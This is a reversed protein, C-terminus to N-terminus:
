RRHTEKLRQGWPRLEKRDGMSPDEPRGWRAYGTAHRCAPKRHIATASLAANSEVVNWWEGDRVPQEEAGHAGRQEEERWPQIRRARVRREAEARDETRYASKPPRGLYGKPSIGGDDAGAPRGEMLERITPRPPQYPKIRTMPIAKRQAVRPAGKHRQQGGADGEGVVARDRPNVQKKRRKGKRDREDSFM